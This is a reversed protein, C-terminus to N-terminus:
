LAVVGSLVAVVGGSARGYASVLIASVHVVLPLGGCPDWHLRSFRGWPHEM